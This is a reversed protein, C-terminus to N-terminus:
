PHPEERTQPDAQSHQGIWLQLGALVLVDNNPFVTALDTQIAEMDEWTSEMSVTAIVIAGNPIQAVQLRDVEPLRKRKLWKM